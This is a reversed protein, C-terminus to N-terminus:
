GCWLRLAPTQLLSAEIQELLVLTVTRYWGVAPEHKVLQLLEALNRLVIEVLV